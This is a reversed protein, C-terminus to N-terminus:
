VSLVIKFMYTLAFNRMCIRMHLSLYAYIRMQMRVQRLFIDM